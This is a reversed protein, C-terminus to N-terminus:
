RMLLIYTSGYTRQMGSEKQVDGISSLGCMKITCHCCTSIESVSRSLHLLGAPCLLAAWRRSLTDTDDASRQDDGSWMHQLSVTYQLIIQLNEDTQWICYFVNSNHKQYFAHQTDIVGVFGATVGFSDSCVVLTSLNYISYSHIQSCSSEKVSNM